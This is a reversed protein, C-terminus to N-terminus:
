FATLYQMIFIHKLYLKIKNQRMKYPFEKKIISRNVENDNIASKNLSKINHASIVANTKKKTQKNYNTIMKNNIKNYVM